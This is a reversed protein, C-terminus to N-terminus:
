EISLDRLSKSRKFLRVAAYGTGLFAAFCYFFLVYLLTARRDKGHNATPVNARHGCRLNQLQAIKTNGPWRGLSKGLGACRAPYQACITKLAVPRATQHSVFSGCVFPRATPGIIRM